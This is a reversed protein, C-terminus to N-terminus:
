GVGLLVRDVQMGSAGWGAGGLCESAWPEWSMQLRPSVWSLPAQCSYTLLDPRPRLTVSVNFSAPDQTRVVKKAVQSTQARGSPTPLHHTPAGPTLLMTLVQRGKLVVELVKYAISVKLSIEAVPPPESALTGLQPSKEWWRVPSSVGEQEKSFSSAALVALCFLGPLGLAASSCSGQSGERGNEPSRSLGTLDPHTLFSTQPTAM